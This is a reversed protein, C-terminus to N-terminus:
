RAAGSKEKETGEVRGRELHLAAVRASLKELAEIGKPGGHHRAAKFLGDSVEKDLCRATPARVRSWGGRM